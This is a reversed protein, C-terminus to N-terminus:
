QNENEEGKYKNIANEFYEIIEEKLDLPSIIKIVNAYQSAWYLMAKKSSKLTVLVKEDKQVISIDKGFWDIVQDITNEDTEFTVEIVDDVFM